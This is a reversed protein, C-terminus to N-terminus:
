VLKRTDVTHETCKSVQFHRIVETQSYWQVYGGAEGWNIAQRPQSGKPTYSPHAEEASGM